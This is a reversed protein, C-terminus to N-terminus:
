ILTNVPSKNLELKYLHTSVRDKLKNLNYIKHQIRTSRSVAMKISLGTPLHTIVGYQGPYEEWRMHNDKLVKLFNYEEGFQKGQKFHELRKKEKEPEENGYFYRRKSLSLFELKHFLLHSPPCIM